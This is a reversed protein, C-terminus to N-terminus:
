IIEISNTGGTGLYVCFINLSFETSCTAKFHKKNLDHLCILNQFLIAWLRTWLSWLYNMTKRNLYRFSNYVDVFAYVYYMNQNKYKIVFWNKDVSLKISWFNQKGLTQSSFNLIPIWHDLPTHAHTHAPDHTKKFM